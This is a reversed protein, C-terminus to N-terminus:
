TQQNTQDDDLIYNMLYEQMRRSRNSTRTPLVTETDNISSQNITEPITSRRNQSSYEDRIDSPRNHEVNREQTSCAPASDDHHRSEQRFTSNEAVSNKKPMTGM